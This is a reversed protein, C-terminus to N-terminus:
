CYGTVNCYMHNWKGCLCFLSLHSLIIAFSKCIRLVVSFSRIKYFTHYTSCSWLIFLAIAITFRSLSVLFNIMCKFATESGRMNIAVGQHGCKIYLIIVWRYLQLLFYQFTYKGGRTEKRHSVSILRVTFCGILASSLMSGCQSVALWVMENQPCIRPNYICM